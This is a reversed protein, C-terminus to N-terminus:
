QFIYRSLSPKSERIICYKLIKYAVDNHDSHIYSKFDTHNIKDSLVFLKEEINSVFHVPQQESLSILSLNIAEEADNSSKYINSAVIFLWLLKSVLEFCRLARKESENPFTAVFEDVSKHLILNCLIQQNKQNKSFMSCCSQVFGHPGRLYTRKIKSLALYVFRSDILYWPENIECYRTSIATEIGGPPLYVTPPINSPTCLWFGDEDDVFRWSDDKGEVIRYHLPICSQSSEKSPNEDLSKLQSTM